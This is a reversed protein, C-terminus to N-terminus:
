IKESIEKFAVEPKTLLGKSILTTINNKAIWINNRDLKPNRGIANLDFSYYNDKELKYNGVIKNTVFSDTVCYIYRRISKKNKKEFLKIEGSYYFRGMFEPSPVKKNMEYQELYEKSIGIIEPIKGKKISSITAKGAINFVKTEYMLSDKRYIKGYKSLESGSIVYDVVVQINQMETFREFIETKIEGKLYVGLLDKQKSDGINTNAIHAGIIFINELNSYSPISKITEFQELTLGCWRDAVSVNKIEIFCNPNRKKNNHFIYPIDPENLIESNSKIDLDLEFSKNPNFNALIKSVGIEVLKGFLFSDIVGGLGRSSGSTRSSKSKKPDLHYKVAFGFAVEFDKKTLNYSLM